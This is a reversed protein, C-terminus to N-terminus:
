LRACLCVCCVGIVQMVVALHRIFSCFKTWSKTSRFVTAFDCSLLFQYKVPMVSSRLFSVIVSSCFAQCCVVFKHGGCQCLNASAFESRDLM